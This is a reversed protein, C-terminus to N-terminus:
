IEGKLTCQQNESNFYPCLFCKKIEPLSEISYNYKDIYFQFYKENLKRDIYNFGTFYYKIKLKDLENKFYREFFLYIYTDDSYLHLAKSTKHKTILFLDNFFDNELFIFDIYNKSTSNNYFLKYYLNYLENSIPKNILLNLETCSIKLTL